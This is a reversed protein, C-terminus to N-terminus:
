MPGDSVQVAEEYEPPLELCTIESDESESFQFPVSMPFFDAPHMPRWISAATVSHGDVAAGTLLHPRNYVGPALSKNLKCLRLCRGLQPFSAHHPALLLSECGPGIVPQNPTMVHLTCRVSRSVCLRRCAAVVVCDSCQDVLLTGSCAGLLVMSRACKHLSASRLPTLLYLASDSCRWALLSAQDCTHGGARCVTERSVAHLLVLKDSPAAAKDANSCVRGRPKPADSHLPWCIRTSSAMMAQVGLPNQGLNAIIWTALPRCAFSRTVKSYGSSAAMRPQAGLEQSISPPSCGTNSIASALSRLPPNWPQVTRVTRGGDDSGALLLRLADAAERSLQVNDSYADSEALLDLLERLNEQVFAVHTQEDQCKGAASATLSAALGGSGGGGLSSESADGEARPWEASTTQHSRRLNIANIKQMYLFIVFTFLDVSQQNRVTEQASSGGRNAEEHLRCELESLRDPNTGCTMMCAHFMLWAVDSGSALHESAFLRWVPFTLQPFGSAGKSRAHLVLKRLNKPTLRQCPSVPFVAFTLPEFRVWFTISSKGGTATLTASTSSSSRSGSSSPRSGSYQFNASM